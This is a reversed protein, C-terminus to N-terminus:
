GCRVGEAEEYCCFTLNDKRKAFRENGEKRVEEPRIWWM